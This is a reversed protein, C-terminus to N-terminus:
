KKFLASHASTYPYQHPNLIRKFEEGRKTVSATIDAIIRHNQSTGVKPEGEQDRM